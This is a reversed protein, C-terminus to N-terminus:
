HVVCFGVNGYGLGWGGGFCVCVCVPADFSRSHQGGIEQVDEQGGMENVVGGVCFIRVFVCMSAAFSKSYQM